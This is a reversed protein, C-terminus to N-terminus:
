LRHEAVLSAVVALLRYVFIFLLGLEGWDSFPQVCCCLGLVVLFLILLM